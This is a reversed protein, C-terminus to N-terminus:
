VSQRWHSPRFPRDCGPCLLDLLAGYRVLLFLTEGLSATLRLLVPRCVDRLGMPNGFTSYSM